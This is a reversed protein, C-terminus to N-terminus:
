PSVGCGWREGPTYVWPVMGHIVLVVTLWNESWPEAPFRDGSNAREARVAAGAFQAWSACGRHLLEVAAQVLDVSAVDITLRLAEAKLRWRAAREAVVEARVRQVEYAESATM